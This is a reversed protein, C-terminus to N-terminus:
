KKKNKKKSKKRKELNKRLAAERSKLLSDKLSICKRSFLKENELSSIPNKLSLKLIEEKKDKVIKDLIKM